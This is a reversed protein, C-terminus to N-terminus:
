KAWLPRVDRDINEQMFEHLRTGSIIIDVNTELLDVLDQYLDGLDFLTTGKAADVYLDLDSGEKDEGRAVSGFVRINSFMPYKQLVGELEARHKELSVSPRM